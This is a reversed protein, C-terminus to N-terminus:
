LRAFSGRPLVIALRAKARAIWISQSIQALPATPPFFHHEYSNGCVASPASKFQLAFGSLELHADIKAGRFWFQAEAAPRLSVSVITFLRTDGNKKQADNFFASRETAASKLAEKREGGGRFAFSNM